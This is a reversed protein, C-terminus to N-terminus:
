LDYLTEDVKSPRQKVLRRLRGIPEEPASGDEGFVDGMEEEIKEPSEGEEMRRIAEEMKGDIPMGATQHLKRMMSALQKPNNEDLGESERMLSEMAQEMKADDLGPLDSEPGSDDAQKRSCAFRSLCRKLKPRKCRPCSPQSSTDIKRSFFNYITNCDACYFEYIPM